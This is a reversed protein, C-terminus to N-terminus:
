SRRVWWGTCRTRRARTTRGVEVSGAVDAAGEADRRSASAMATAAKTSPSRPRSTSLTTRPGTARTRAPRASHRPVARRPRASRPRPRPMASRTTKKARAAASEVSEHLM